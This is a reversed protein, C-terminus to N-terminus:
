YASISPKFSVPTQTISIVSYLFPMSEPSIQPCRFSTLWEPRGIPLDMLGAYDTGSSAVNAVSRSISARSPPLVKTSTRRWIIASVTREFIKLSRIEKRGVSKMGCAIEVGCCTMSPARRAGSMVPWSPRSSKRLIVACATTCRKLPM